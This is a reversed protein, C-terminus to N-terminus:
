EPRRNASRTQNAGMDTAGRVGLRWWVIAAIYILLSALSIWRGVVWGSPAYELRILHHGPGLPVAMLTYDAPMVQYESQSRGRLAVARWYRSYSDTILLLEPRTVDAAITLSDTTASLLRATGPEPGPAPVPEPDSELIVTKAADFSLANLAVLINNRHEIRRWDDVLLLHPLGEVRQTVGDSLIPFDIPIVRDNSIVYRLRLLRWMPSVSRLPLWGGSTGAYDPSFGQSWFMFELYRQQVVPDYGSIDKAGATTASDALPVALSGDSNTNVIRYDGPHAAVFQQVQAPVTAALHFTTLNSRAFGFAEAVGFVALIYAAQPRATRLFLLAALVLCTGAAILCRVGAFREAAALFGPAYPRPVVAPPSSFAAFMQVLDHWIGNFTVSVGAHAVAGFAGLALGVILLGLAATKAGAASRILADMGFASLLAMFLMFEFAYAEPRRFLNFGPVVRYLLGFLPTNDGLAICLLVVVMLIWAGRHPSKVRTGLIAMTLGTLGFFLNANAGWDVWLPFRIMDGFFDPVLLTLFSNYSLSFSSAFAFSSGGQRTGEAAVQLGTWLQAACILLAGAGVVSLALLTRVPRPARVLRIAVYIAGTVITNFLVQPHGALVQMSFAFIGVIVWKACPQGLLSDISLLILAVWAMSDIPALHGLLIDGFFPRSFMAVCAAFLVALPHLKYHGAWMAMFLGLIFVHLAFECDVAKALPLTLYLIWNPPYLLASQFNGFFALGSFVHPNWLALNGARLQEFGFQRSYVFYNSTDMGLQSLVRDGPIFLVGAFMALTMGLLVLPVFLPSYLWAYNSSATKRKSPV